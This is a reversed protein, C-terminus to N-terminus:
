EKTHAKTAFYIVAKLEEGMKPMRQYGLSFNMIAHSM